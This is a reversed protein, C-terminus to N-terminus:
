SIDDSECDSRSLKEEELDKLISDIKMHKEVSDDLKFTLNPFHRIVIQKSALVAIYGSASQLAELTNQKEEESGIVSFFVKAYHLDKTIEVKTITFFTSVNPNSVEKRIVESIVEKLLSNLRSTRRTEM